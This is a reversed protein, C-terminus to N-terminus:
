EPGRPFLALNILLSPLTWWDALGDMTEVLNSLAATQKLFNYNKNNVHLNLILM